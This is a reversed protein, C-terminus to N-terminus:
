TEEHFSIEITPTDISSESHVDLQSSNPVPFLPAVALATRPEAVLLKSRRALVKSPRLLTTPAVVAVIKSSNGRAAEFHQQLLHETERVIPASDKQVLLPVTVPVPAQRLSPQSGNLLFQALFSPSFTTQNASPVISEATSDWPDKQRDDIFCSSSVSEVGGPSTSADMTKSSKGKKTQSAGQRRLALHQSGKPPTTDPKLYYPHQKTLLDVKSDLRLVLEELAGLRAWVAVEFSQVRSM